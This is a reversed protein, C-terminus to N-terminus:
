ASAACRLAQVVPALSWTPLFEEIAAELREVRENSIRAAEVMEQLAIQHAAHDFSQEQL